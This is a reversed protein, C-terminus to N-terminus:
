SMAVEISPLRRGSEKRRNIEWNKRTKVIDACVGAGVGAAGPGDAVGAGSAAVEADGVSDRSGSAIGRGLDDEIESGAALGTLQEGFQEWVTILVVLVGDATSSGL